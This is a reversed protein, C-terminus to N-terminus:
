GLARMPNAHGYAHACCSCLTVKSVDVCVRCHVHVVSHFQLGPHVCYKSAHGPYAMSNSGHKGIIEGNVKGNEVLAISEAIITM